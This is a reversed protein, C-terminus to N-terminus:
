AALENGVLGISIKFPNTKYVEALDGVTRVIGNYVIDKWLKFLLNKDLATHYLFSDIKQVIDESYFNYIRGKAKESLKKYNDAGQLFDYILVENNGFDINAIDPNIIIQGDIGINNLSNVSYLSLVEEIENISEISSLLLYGRNFFMFNYLFATDKKIFEINSFDFDELINTITNKINKYYSENLNKLLWHSSPKVDKLILQVRRCNNWENIDINFAADIVDWSRGAYQRGAKFFVGEFSCDSKALQYKIHQANNGMLKMSRVETNKLCLVPAPNGCGFPEFCKITSATELDIIKEDTYYGDEGGQLVFTRFGLGYGRDCCDLVQERTLRYRDAKCNSRRIGCYLCDNKCYNTFEILGRMYVERGYIAQRVAAAREFLYEATDGGPNALLTEFEEPSLIKNKELKDILAKLM